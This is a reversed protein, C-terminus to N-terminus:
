NYNRDRKVEMVEEERCRGEGVEGRQEGNVSKLWRNTARKDGRGRGM